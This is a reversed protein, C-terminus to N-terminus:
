RATPSSRDVLVQDPRPRHRLRAPSNWRTRLEALLAPQGGLKAAIAGVTQEHPVRRHSYKRSGGAVAPPLWWFGADLKRYAERDLAFEKTDGAVCGLVDAWLKRAAAEDLLGRDVLTDPLSRRTAHANILADLFVPAAANTAQQFHGLAAELRSPPLVLRPYVRDRVFNLNSPRALVAQV